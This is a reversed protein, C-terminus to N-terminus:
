AGGLQGFFIHTTYELRVRGVQNHADFIRELEAMMPAYTPAEPRPIFSSSRMRGAVGAFDFEQFNPLEYSSYANPGFFEIMQQEHPYSEKVSAYDTGFKRLLDEYDRLFPTTDTLRENWVIVVWGDPKLIRRFERRAADHDFWHFAQGASVFNMSADELTTAEASGDISTFSDYSALYEEGAKRMEENPEVGFVRNGNKLFLESLFGTGSGIDAIAHGSKLNCEARLLDRIGTPYGPRYHVYDAVRSSFRQKADAFNM